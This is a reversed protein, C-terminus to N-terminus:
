YIKSILGKDSADNAFINEWETPQRKIKKITEKATSFSELKIYDWKNKRKKGKGSTIYDSFINNHYIDSM